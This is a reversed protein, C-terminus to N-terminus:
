GHATPSSSSSAYRGSYDVWREAEFDYLKCLRTTRLYDRLRIPVDRVIGPYHDHIHDAAKELNYFPIRADVHHPVHIMIHHLFFNLFRPSVRFIMTGEMQAKFRTWSEQAHWKLEPNIHHLYVIAGIAYNFVVWPILMVKVVLWGVYAVTMWGSLDKFFYAFLCYSLVGLAVGGILFRRDHNIDRLWKKPASFAIMRKWWVRVMYYIGAGLWSWELRHALKQLRSLNAYEEPSYPHWVFDREQQVTFGHHVRNHGLIWASYIHLSPLMTIRGVWDCLWRKKFLAKHGADHGLVFLASVALGALIWLPILFLINDTSLLAAVMAFYIALDRFVYFLGKWASNKYCSEPIIAIVERLHKPYEEATVTGSENSV